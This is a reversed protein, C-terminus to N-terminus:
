PDNNWLERGRQKRVNKTKLIKKMMDVIHHFFNYEIDNKM